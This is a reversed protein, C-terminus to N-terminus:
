IAAVILDQGSEILRNTSRQRHAQTSPGDIDSPGGNWRRRSM